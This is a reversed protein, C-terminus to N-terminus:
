RSLNLDRKITKGDNICTYVVVRAPKAPTWRFLSSPTIRKGNITDIQYGAEVGVSSLPGPCQIIFPGSEGEVFTGGFGAFESEAATDSRGIFEMSAYFCTEGTSESCSTQASSAACSDTAWKSGDPGNCAM